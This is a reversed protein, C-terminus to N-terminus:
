SVHFGGTLKPWYAMVIADAMNPSKSGNPKKDITIRGKGDYAFTPRSLENVIEHLYKLDGSLVILDNPDEIEGSKVARFTKNFRRRLEWWAQAKLNSYFEKNRPSDYDGKIIRQTPYFCSSAANWAKASVFGLSMNNFAAKVGAGVGICDYSLNTVKHKQCVRLAKSATQHTDGEGWKDVYNLRIGCRVAIASLDGGEDAVDLGGFVQGKTEIGLIKDADVAAKVWEQPIVVNEVAGAYDRDVEQKFQVLLGEAEAKARRRDYWEQTKHPHDRWDMIFVRTRGSEIECGPFWVEGQERKRHFVNGTGHVTSIDIQVETNDGLAAEILEPREFWASEDKFYMLNRGGRGINDGAEGTIVAGNEPNLIRM